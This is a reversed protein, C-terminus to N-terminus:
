RGELPYAAQRADQGTGDGRLPTNPGYEKPSSDLTGGLDFSDILAALLTPTAAVTGAADTIAEVAAHYPEVLTRSSTALALDREVALSPVGQNAREGELQRQAQSEAVKGRRTRQVDERSQPRNVPATEVHGDAYIYATYPGVFDTRTEKSTYREAM